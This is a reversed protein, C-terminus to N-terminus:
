VFVWKQFINSRGRHWQKIPESNAKCFPCHEGSRRDLPGRNNALLEAPKIRFSYCIGSSAAESPRYFEPEPEPEAGTAHRVFPDNCPEMRSLMALLVTSRFGSELNQAALSVGCVLRAGRLQCFWLPSLCGRRLGICCIAERFGAFSEQVM